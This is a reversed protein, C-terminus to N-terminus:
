HSSYQGTCVIHEGHARVWLSVQSQWETALHNATRLASSSQADTKNNKMMEKMDTLSQADIICRARHQINLFWIFHHDWLECILPSSLNPLLCNHGPHEMILISFWTSLSSILPLSGSCSSPFSNALTPLPSELFSSPSTCLFPSM